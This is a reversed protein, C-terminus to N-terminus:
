GKVVLTTPAGCIIECGTKEMKRQEGSGEPVESSWAQGNGSTTKGGRGRDAKNEEGKWQAKALHNQGSVISPLCSWVM